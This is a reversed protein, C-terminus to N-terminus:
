MEGHAGAELFERFHRAAQAIADPAAVGICDFGLARAEGSLATKLDRPSLRASENLFRPGCLEAVGARGGAMRQAAPPVVPPIEGARVVGKGRRGRDMARRGSLRDGFSAGRRRSGCINAPRRGSLEAHAGALWFAGRGGWGASIPWIIACM